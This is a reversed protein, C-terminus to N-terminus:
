GPVLELDINAVTPCQDSCNTPKFSVTNTGNHLDSLAVPQVIYRWAYGNAGDANPDPANRNAGNITATMTRNSAFWYVDYTLYATKVNSLDVNGLSFTGTPTQYGLNYTADSRRQLADPVEYGRDLPLVPGDFGIAHWHYTMTNTSNFKAANYQAHQFSLYGRTFSLAVNVSAIQRFNGGGADSAWLDVHNQSVKMQFHNAHDDQTSFCPSRVTYTTPQYNTFSVIERLANATQNTPGCWDADFLLMMGNRPYMHTGPHDLHPGQVPEDSIWVETWFSHSGETKADVSWVVNGTRGAFDFPQRIRNSNMVYQGGDDMGEMWHNSEGFQQGCIFSDQDPIMIQHTMCFEANFPLYNNILGQAPNNNQSARTFSWKAPDLDGERGGGVIEQFTDCFAIQMLQCQDAVGTGGGMGGGMSGGGTGGGTSGGGTSGGGGGTSGGGTGGGM